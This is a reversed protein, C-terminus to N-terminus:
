VWSCSYYNQLQHISICILTHLSVETLLAVLPAVNRNYYIARNSTLWSPSTVAAGKAIVLDKVHLQQGDLRALPALHCHEGIDDAFSFLPEHRIPPAM